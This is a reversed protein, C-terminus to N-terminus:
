VIVYKPIIRCSPQIWKTFYIWKHPEVMLIDFILMKKMCIWSSIDYLNLQNIPTFCKPEYLIHKDTFNHRKWNSASRYSVCVRFTYQTKVSIKCNTKKVITILHQHTYFSKFLDYFRLFAIHFIFAFFKFQWKHNCFIRWIIKICVIIFSFM